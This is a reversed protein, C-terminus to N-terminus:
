VGSFCPPTTKGELGFWKRWESKRTGESKCAKEDFNQSERAACMNWDMRRLLSFIYWHSEHGLFAFYISMLEKLEDVVFVDDDPVDSTCMRRFAHYFNASGFDEAGSSVRQPKIVTTQCIKCVCVQLSCM